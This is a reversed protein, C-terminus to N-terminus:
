RKAKGFNSPVKLLRSWIEWSKLNKVEHRFFLIFYKQLCHFLSEVACCLAPLAGGFSSDASAPAKWCPHFGIVYVAPRDTATPVEPWSSPSIYTQALALAPEKKTDISRAPLSSFCALKKCPKTHGIQVIGLAYYLSPGTKKEKEFILGPGLPVREASYNWIGLASTWHGNFAVCCQM